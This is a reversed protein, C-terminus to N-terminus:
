AEIDELCTVGAAEIMAAATDHHDADNLCGSALYRQWEARERHEDATARGWSICRGDKLRFTKDLLASLREGILGAASGDALTDGAFAKKEAGRTECRMVIRMSNRVYPFLTRRMDEDSLSDLYANTAEDLDEHEGAFYRLRAYTSQRELVAPSM